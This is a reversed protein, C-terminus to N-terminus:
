HMDLILLPSGAFGVTAFEGIPVTPVKVRSLLPACEELQEMMSGYHLRGLRVGVIEAEKISLTRVHYAASTQWGGHTLVIRGAQSVMQVADALFDEDGTLDMAINPGEGGTIERLTEVPLYREVVADSFQKALARRDADADCYICFLGQTKATALAYLGSANDTFILVSDQPLPKARLLAQRYFALIGLGLADGSTISRPLLQWHNEHGFVLGTAAGDFDLGMVRPRECKEPANAACAVCDGCAAAPDLVVRDGTRLDARGGPRVVEGVAWHGPVLPGPRAAGGYLERDWGDLLVKEIKVTLADRAPGDSKDEATANERGHFYLTKMKM